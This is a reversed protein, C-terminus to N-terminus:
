KFSSIFEATVLSPCMMANLILADVVHSNSPYVNTKKFDSALSNIADRPLGQELYELARAKCWKLNDERPDAPAAM